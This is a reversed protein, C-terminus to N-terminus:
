SPYRCVRGRWEDDKWPHMHYKFMTIIDQVRKTEDSNRPWFSFSYNFERFGPGEYFM